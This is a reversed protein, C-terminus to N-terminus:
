GVNLMLTSCDSITAHKIDCYRTILITAFVILRTCGIAFDYQIIDM